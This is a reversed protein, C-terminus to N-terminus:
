LFFYVTDSTSDLAWCAIVADSKPGDIVYYPVSTGDNYTVRTSHWSSLFSTDKLLAVGNKPIQISVVGNVIEAALGTTDQKILFVGEHNKPLVLEVVGASKNQCGASSLFVLSLTYAFAIM